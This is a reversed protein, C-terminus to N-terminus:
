FLLSISRKSTSLLESPAGGIDELILAPRNHHKELGYAKAIGDIRLDRLIEYERKLGAMDNASPFDAMLTKIIVPMNDQLREGRYVIRKRGRHLEEMIKYGPIM